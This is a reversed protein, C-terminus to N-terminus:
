KYKMDIMSKELEFQVKKQQEAIARKSEEDEEKPHINSRSSTQSISFSASNMPSVLNTAPTESIISKIRDSIYSDMRNPDSGSSIGIKKDPTSPEKSEADVIDFSNSTSKANQSIYKDHTTLYSAKRLNENSSINAMNSEKKKKNSSDNIDPIFTVDDLLDSFNITDKM